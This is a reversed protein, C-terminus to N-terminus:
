DVGAPAPFLDVVPCYFDPLVPEATIIDGPRFVTAREPWFAIITRHPPLALWVLQVGAAFYEEVKDWIDLTVNNPSIVEVAMAPVLALIAEPDIPLEGEIVALDPRRARNRDAGVDFLAEVFVQILRGKEASRELALWILRVVAAHILMQPTMGSEEGDWIHKRVIRGDVLECGRIVDMPLAAFEERTYLQEATTM